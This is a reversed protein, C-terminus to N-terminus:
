RLTTWALGPGARGGVDGTQGADTARVVPVDPRHRRLVGEPGSWSTPRVLPRTELVSLPFQGRNRYAQIPSVLLDWTDAARLGALIPEPHTRGRHRPKTGFGHM